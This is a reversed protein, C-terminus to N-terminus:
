ATGERAKAGYGYPPPPTAAAAASPYPYAMAPDAHPQFYPQGGPQQPTPEDAAEVNVYARNPQSASSFAPQAPQVLGALRVPQYGAIGCASAALSAVSATSFLGNWLVACGYVNRGGSRGRGRRGRAAALGRRAAVNRSAGYLFLAVAAAALATVCWSIVSLKCAVYRRRDDDDGRARCRGFCGSAATVTAQSALLLLAAAIGCGLAPTTRYVCYKGDYRVFSRVRVFHSTCVLVSTSHSQSLACAKSKTGEAVFGLIAALLGLVAAAVSVLRVRKTIGQM